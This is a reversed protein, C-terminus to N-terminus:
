RTATECSLPDVPNLRIAWLSNKRVWRYLTLPYRNEQDTVEYATGPRAVWTFTCHYDHQYTQYVIVLTNKGAEIELKYAAEIDTGNHTVIPYNSEIVAYGEGKIAPPQVCSCLVLNSLCLCARGFAHIRVNM